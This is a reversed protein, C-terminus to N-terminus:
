RLVWLLAALGPGLGAALAQFRRRGLRLRSKVTGVPLGLLEAAEAQSREELDCLVLVEAQAAPLKALVDRVAQVEAKAQVLEDPARGGDPISPSPGGAWRRWWVRRRHRAVVRRVVGYVWAALKEPGHVRDLTRSLTILVDQVADDVDIHGHGLRDTWAMVIPLWARLLAEEAGPSGARYATFLEPPPLPRAM